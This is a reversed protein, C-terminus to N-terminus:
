DARRPGFAIRKMNRALRISHTEVAYFLWHEFGIRTEPADSAGTRPEFKRDGVSIEREIGLARFIAAIRNLWHHDKLARAHARVGMNQRRQPDRLLQRAIEVFSAPSLGLAVEDAAFVESILPNDCIQCGGFGAIQFVRDNLQTMHSRQRLTHVNPAIAAARYAAGLDFGPPTFSAPVGTLRRWAADGYVSIRDPVTLSFLQRFLDVNGRRRHWLNGIFIIDVTPEAATVPPLAMPVNAGYALALIPSGAAEWDSYFARMFPLASAAWVLKRDFKALHRVERSDACPAQFEFSASFPNAPLGNHVVSTGAENLRAPDLELIGRESSGIVSDNSYTMVVDFRRRDFIGTWGPRTCDAVTFTDGAAEFAARWSSVFHQPVIAPHAVYLIEM